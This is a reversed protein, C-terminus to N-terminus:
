PCSDENPLNIVHIEAYKGKDSSDGSGVLISVTTVPSTRKCWIQVTTYGLSVKVGQAPDMTSHKPDFTWGHSAMWDKYFATIESVTGIHTIVARADQQRAADDPWPIQFTPSTRTMRGAIVKFSTPTPPTAERAVEPKDDPKSPEKATPPPGAVIGIILLTVLLGLVVLSAIKIKKTLSM